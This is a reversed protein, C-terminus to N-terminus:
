VIPPADKPTEAQNGNGAEEIGTSRRRRWLLAVLVVVVLAALSLAMAVVVVNIDGPAEVTFVKCDEVLDNGGLSDDGTARICVEHSGVALGLTVNFDTKAPAEAPLESGALQITPIETYKGGDVRMEVKLLDSGILQDVIGILTDPDPVSTCNGGNLPIDNLAEKCDVSEGVAVSHVIANTDALAYDADISCGKGCTSCEGDGVFVVVSTRATNRPDAILKAAENLADQCYNEGSAEGAFIADEIAAVNSVDQLDATVNVADDFNIVAALSASGDSIAEQHLAYVFKQM